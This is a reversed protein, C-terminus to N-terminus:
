VYRNTSENSENKDAVKGKKKGDKTAGTKPADHGPRFVRRKFETVKEILTQLKEVADKNSVKMSMLMTRDAETLEEDSSFHVRTIFRTLPGGNLYNNNEFMLMTPEFNDYADESRPPKKQRPTKKGLQHDDIGIEEEYEEGQPFYDDNGQKDHPLKSEEFESESCHRFNDIVFHEHPSFFDTRDKLGIASNFDQQYGKIGTFQQRSDIISLSDRNIQIQNSEIPKGSEVTEIASKM